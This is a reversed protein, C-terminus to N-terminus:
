RSIKISLKMSISDETNSFNKKPFISLNIKKDELIQKKLENIRNKPIKAKIFVSNENKETNNSIKMDDLIKRIFESTYDLDKSIIKVSYTRNKYFNSFLSNGITETSGASIEAFAQPKIVSEKAPSEFDDKEMSDSFSLAAIESVQDGSYSAAPKIAVLNEPILIKEEEKRLINKARAIRNRSVPIKKAIGLDPVLSEADTQKQMDSPLSKLVVFNQKKELVPMISDTKEEAPMIMDDKQSTNVNTVVSEKMTTSSKTEQHDYKFLVLSFSFLFVLVIINAYVPKFGLDSLFYPNLFSFKSKEEIKEFIKKRNESLADRSPEFFSMTSSINNKLFRSIQYQKDCAPCEKIHNFFIDRDESSIEKDYVFDNIIKKFESCGTEKKM